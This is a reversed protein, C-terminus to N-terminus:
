GVRRLWLLTIVLFTATPFAASFLPDLNYVQGLYHFSSNFLYFAIGVLSGALVRQSIGVSRLPGLVFPLALLVMVGTTVPNIIKIWLAQQYRSTDLHNNRLYRVYRHLGVASLADPRVLVVELLGPSILSEWRAEPIQESIVGDASILSRRIGSLRWAKNRYEAEDAQTIKQLHRTKDFDYITLGELWGGPHITRINIFSAGDRAWFGSRGQMAVQQGLAAARQQQAYQELDPALWEGVAIMMAMLLAGLRMVAGGIRTVSVGAARMATIESGGALAGLGVLTGLLAAVPFLEYLRRPLTLAVYGLAYYVTYNGSGVRELEGLFSIFTYLALLVLMVVLIAFAVTRGLYRDLVKM